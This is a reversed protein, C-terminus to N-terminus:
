LSRTRAASGGRVVDRILGAVLAVIERQQGQVAALIMAKDKESSCEAKDIDILEDDAAKLVAQKADVVARDAAALKGLLPLLAASAHGASM